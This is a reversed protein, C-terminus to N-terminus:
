YFYHKTSRVFKELTLTCDEANMALLPWLFPEKKLKNLPSNTWYVFYDNSLLIIVYFLCYFNTLIYILLYFSICFVIVIM